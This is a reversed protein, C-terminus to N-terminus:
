KKPCRMLDELSKAALACKKAEASMEKECRAIADAKGEALKSSLEAPMISITHDVVRECDSGEKKSCGTVLGAFVFSLIISKM